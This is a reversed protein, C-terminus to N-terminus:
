IARDKADKQRETNGDNSGTQQWEKLRALRSMDAEEPGMSKLSVEGMM